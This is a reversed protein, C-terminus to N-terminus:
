KTACAPCGDLPRIDQNKVKFVDATEVSRTRFRPSPDDSRLWDVILDTALAVASIPASVAYPTYHQCARYSKEPDEKLVRFREQMHSEEANSRLCRFCGFEQSDTWLAQVTEGNGKIWVHLIPPFSHEANIQAENLMEAVPEEGTANVVLDFGKLSNPSRMELGHAEINIGPLQLHAEDKLAEAKSKFLYKFGLAHRGLNEPMLIQPDFLELKGEGHGAALRILAQALYGGIAGCGILAVKRGSLAAGLSSTLNRSGIFSHSLDQVRLRSIKEGGGYTLLFQFLAQGRYKGGRSLALRKRISSDVSLRFGVWGAPCDILFYAFGIDLFKKDTEIAAKCRKYLSLDWEKLWRLTQKITWPLADTVPPQAASRFIWCHTKTEEDAQEGWASAMKSTSDADTSIVRRLREGPVFSYVSASQAAASMNGVGVHVVTGKSPTTWYAQFEAQFDSLNRAPNAILDNLLGTAQNLCRLISGAPNYRDLIVEGKAMYCFSGDTVHHAMRKPLFQPQGLIRIKPYDIFDWDSLSLEISVEGAKCTLDGVFRRCGGKIPLARFNLDHMLRLVDGVRKADM